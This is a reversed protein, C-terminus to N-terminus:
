CASAAKLMWVSKSFNKIYDDMLTSILYVGDKDAAKKIAVVSNLLYTFDELVAKFIEASAIPKAAAEKIEALALCDKMSAIPKGGLMLINEAIEDIGNKIGDYYAELQPHVTFFDHGTVYWHFNQLKHYEVTFDALLKNLLEEM